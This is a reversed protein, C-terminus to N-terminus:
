DEAILAHLPAAAWISSTTFMIPHRLM